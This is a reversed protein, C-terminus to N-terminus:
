MKKNTNKGWKHIETYQGTYSEINGWTHLKTNVYNKNM